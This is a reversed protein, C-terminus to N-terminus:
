RSPSFIIGIRVVASCNLPIAIIRWSFFDKVIRCKFLARIKKNFHYTKKTQSANVMGIHGCRFTNQADTFCNKCLIGVSLLVTFVSLVAAKFRCAIANNCLGFLSVAFFTLM